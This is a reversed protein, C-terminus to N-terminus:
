GDLQKLVAVSATRKPSPLSSKCLCMRLKLIMIKWSLSYNLNNFFSSFNAFINSFNTLLNTPFNLFAQSLKPFGSFTHSLHLDCIHSSFKTPSSPFAQSLNPFASFHPNRLDRWIRFQGHLDARLVM